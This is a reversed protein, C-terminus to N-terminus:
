CMQILPWRDNAEIEQVEGNYQEEDRSEHGNDDAKQGFGNRVFVHAVHKPHNSAVHQRDLKTAQGDEIEVIRVLPLLYRSPWAPHVLRVRGVVVLM